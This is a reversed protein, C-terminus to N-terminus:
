FTIFRFEPLGTKNRAIFNRICDPPILWIMPHTVNLGLSALADACSNGERYVHTAIFNMFTITRMCNEWRNRIRWPVQSKNRIASIVLASDCELWLNKWHFQDALEIARIAGQLEAQFANM